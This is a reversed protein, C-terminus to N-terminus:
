ASSSCSSDISENVSVGDSGVDGSDGETMIVMDATVVDSGEGAISM